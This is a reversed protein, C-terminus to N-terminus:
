RGMWGGDTGGRPDDNWNTEEKRILSPFLDTLAWVLADVRDGAGDGEIGFPTFLVMQDELQSHTGVHHIRNQEYLAAIPEARTVKGRSARVQVVPLSPRESRLVNEVMQGGMNVEVVVRDAEHIDFAAIAKRAWGRPGLRNSSDDLVYGHGDTGLGATIIGTESSEDGDNSAKAAPDVGIVIRVMDPLKDDHWKRNDDIIKRTWLAPCM